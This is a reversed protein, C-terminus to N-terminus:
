DYELWTRMWFPHISLVLPHHSGRRGRTACRYSGLPWEISAPHCQNLFFVKLLQPHIAQYHTNNLILCISRLHIFLTSTESSGQIFSIRPTIERSISHIFAENWLIRNDHRWNSSNWDGLLESLDGHCTQPTHITNQISFLVLVGVAGWM